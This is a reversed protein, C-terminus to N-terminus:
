CCYYLFCLQTIVMYNRRGPVMNTKRTEYRYKNDKV